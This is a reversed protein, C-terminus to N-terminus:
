NYIDSSRYLRILENALTAPLRADVSLEFTSSPYIVIIFSSFFKAMIENERDDHARFNEEVVSEPSKPTAIPPRIVDNKEQCRKKNVRYM